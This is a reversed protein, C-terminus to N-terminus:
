KMKAVTERLSIGRKELAHIENFLEEKLSNEKESDTTPKFGKVLINFDRQERGEGFDDPTLVFVKTVPHIQLTDGLKGLLFVSRANNYYSELQGRSSRSSTELWFSNLKRYKCEIIISGLYWDTSKDYVNIVIDPRNHTRFNSHHKAIFLPNEESTQSKDLPLIKDYVLEVRINTDEFRLVTGAELFPFLVKDEFVFKWDGAAEEYKSLLIRCIKFYCWMEYLYSSRKWTYSFEPDLEINMKEKRLDLYMQYLVNYRADLIFSHPIYPESVNSVKAYWDQNKLIATMKRLKLAMEKFDALSDTWIRKYQTNEESNTLIAYKEMDGLLEIFQNLKSEYETIIMKLLRNDQIDYFTTKIPVKFTPESGSKIAYRKVTEADFTYKSSNNSSVNEYRTRIENRPNESIDMLSMLVNKSYKKIVLFDYLAKPPIKGNYNKGIGINRRVIDQALGRIEAELDDRMMHWENPSMPKPLVQFTGYYWQNQCFVTIKFVDVRLADYESNSKYLVFSKDSPVRYIHGQEDEKVNDNDLPMIDLADLYLKANTDSSNFYIEIEDNEEISLTVKNEKWLQHEDACFFTATQITKIPFCKIVQLEFPLKSVIDM